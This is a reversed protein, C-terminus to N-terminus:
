VKSIKDIMTNMIGRLREKELLSDSKDISVQIQAMKIPHLARYFPVMDKKDFTAQNLEYFIASLFLGHASIKVHSKMFKLVEAHSKILKYCTDIRTVKALNNLQSKYTAITNPSVTKTPNSLFQFKGPVVGGQGASFRRTM